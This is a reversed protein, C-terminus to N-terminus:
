CKTGAFLDVVYRGIAEQRVFKFGDLRRDRLCFWLAMEARTSDRRLRREAKVANRDPGRM